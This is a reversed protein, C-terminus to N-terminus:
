GSLSHQRKTMLAVFLAGPAFGARSEAPRTRIVLACMLMLLGIQAPLLIPYPLLGSYWASMPPLWDPALLLVEIQGVVRAFFLAICIWLV